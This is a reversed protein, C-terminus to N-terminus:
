WKADGGIKLLAKASEEREVTMGVVERFKREIKETIRRDGHEIRSILINSVGLEAALRQQTYGAAQRMFRFLQPSM